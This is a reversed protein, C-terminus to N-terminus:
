RATEVFEPKLVLYGRRGLTQCSNKSIGKGDREGPALCCIVAIQIAIKKAHVGLPRDFHRYVAQCRRDSTACFRIM